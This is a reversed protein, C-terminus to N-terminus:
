SYLSNLELPICRNLLTYVDLISCYAIACQMCSLSQSAPRLYIGILHVCYYYVLVLTMKWQPSDGCWFELLNFLCSLANSFCERSHFLSFPIFSVLACILNQIESIFSISCGKFHATHMISNMEIKYTNTAKIQANQEVIEQKSKSWKSPFCFYYYFHVCFM